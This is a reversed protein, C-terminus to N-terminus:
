PRGRRLMRSLHNNRAQVFCKLQMSTPWIKSKKLSVSMKIGQYPFIETKLIRIEADNVNRAKVPLCRVVSFAIGASFIKNTLSGYSKASQYISAPPPLVDYSRLVTRYISIMKISLACSGNKNVLQSANFFRVLSRLSRILKQIYRLSHIFITWASKM